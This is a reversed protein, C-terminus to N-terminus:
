LFQGSETGLHRGLGKGMAAGWPRSWCAETAKSARDKPSVLYAPGAHWSLVKSGSSAGDYTSVKVLRTKRPIGMGVLPAGSSVPGGRSRGQTSATM